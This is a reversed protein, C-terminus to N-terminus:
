MEYLNRRELSVYSNGKWHAYPLRDKWKVRENAERIAVSLKKWEKIDGGLELELRIAEWRGSQKEEGVVWFGYAEYICEEPINM